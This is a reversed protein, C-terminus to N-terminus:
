HFGGNDQEWREARRTFGKIMQVAVTSTSAASLSGLRVYLFRYCIGEPISHIYVRAVQVPVGHTKGKLKSSFEENKRVGSSLQPSCVAADVTYVPTSMSSRGPHLPDFFSFYASPNVLSNALQIMMRDVQELAIVASHFNSIELAPFFPEQIKYM